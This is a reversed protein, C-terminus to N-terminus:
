GRWSPPSRRARPSGSPSCPARSSARSSPSRARRLPARRLAADCRDRCRGARPDRAGPVRRAARRRPRRPRRRRLGGMGPAAHRRGRHAARRQHQRGRRAARCRRLDVRAIRDPRADAVGHAIAGGGSHGVLVVEGDLSDVVASVADIHTRLGIGSRDADVSELGPLTLAHVTHGAEELLPTVRQWSSADLWFGPILIVDMGTFSGRGVSM